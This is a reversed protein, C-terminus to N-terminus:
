EQINSFTELRMIQRQLEFKKNADQESELQKRLNAIKVGITARTQEKQAENQTALQTREAQMEPTVPTQPLNKNEQPTDPNVRIQVDSRPAM